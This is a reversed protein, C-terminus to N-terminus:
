MHSYLTRGRVPLQAALIVGHEAETIFLTKNDPGGFAVNTTRMGACSRIRFIPEGFKTFVWVTGFGAHVIAINGDEDCAMGDPGTPSGSLQIFMGIKGVGKYDPLLPIALINNTRTVAVYLLNEQANLVLGNPGAFGDFLLDLEGDARLRYARGTPDNIASQGQDTFYLDGKTSFTLDNPGKLGEHNARNLVVKMAATNPNFELIGAKHDAVFLRGDKHVRLGNPEGDFEAFLSWDGKPSIKFIRGYPIDTILLNGERDFSPGEIFSHVPGAGRKEVWESHAGMKKFKEPMASFVKTELVPPAAYM